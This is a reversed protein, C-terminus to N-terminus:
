PKSSEMVEPYRHYIWVSALGIGLLTWYWIGGMPGEIFVDFTTNALFALWYCTLFLFWSAWRRQILRTSRRFLRFMTGGWAVNLFVWLAFGPVGARALISMHGNHPSRLLKDETVHYGDDTALNIGFGKGKWFHKGYFTYNVIDKWWKLRWEKTGDLDKNKSKGVISTINEFVQTAGIERERGPVQIRLDIALLCLTLVTGTFVVRWITVNMPRFLCCFAVAVLCSLLGGRNTTAVWLFSAGFLVLVRLSQPGVMGSGWYAMMGGLHVGTDGAKAGFLLGTIPNTTETEGALHTPIWILPMLLLLVPFFRSYWDALIRLREPKTTVYIFVIFTFASYGWLMGDRVAYMQYQSLYPFTRYAGWAAFLLIPLVLWSQILVIWRGSLLVILMGSFMLVEGIYLPPVGLYAWGRCFVIYGALNIALFYLWLHAAVHDQWRPQSDSKATIELM